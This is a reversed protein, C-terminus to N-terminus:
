DIRELKPLRPSHLLVRLREDSPQVNSDRLELHRVSPHALQLFISDLDNYPMYHLLLHELLPLYLPLAAIFPIPRDNPACLRRVNPLSQLILTWCAQMQDRTAATAFKVHHLSLDTLAKCRSLSTSLSSAMEATLPETPRFSLRQLLPFGPLLPWDDGQMNGDDLATLTSLSQLARM